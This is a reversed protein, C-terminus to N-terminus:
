SKLSKSQFDERVFSFLAADHIRGGIVLRKRLIGEHHAGAKEATKRSPLNEVAALIEIRNLPPLDEFAAQALLRTARSAAGRKQASVRIWYGLNYYKNATNPQNLGVGGLFKGTVADFIAYGFEMGDRWPDESDRWNAETKEVFERSEEITYNEHCWPMWRSFESGRSEMAAEFLLPVFAKEYARLIIRDDYIETRM